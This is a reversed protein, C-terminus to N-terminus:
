ILLDSPSFTWDQTFNRIFPLVHSPRIRLLRTRCRRHFVSPIRQRPMIAFRTLASDTMQDAASVLLPTKVASLSQATALRCKRLVIRAHVREAWAVLLFDEPAFRTFSKFLGFTSELEWTTPQMVILLCVQALYCDLDWSGKPKLCRIYPWLWFTFNPFAIARNEAPHWLLRLSLKLGPQTITKQFKALSLFTSLNMSLYNTLFSRSRLLDARPYRGMQFQRFDSEAAATRSLSLVLM